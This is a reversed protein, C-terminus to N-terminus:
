DQLRQFWGVEYRRLENLFELLRDVETIGWLCVVHLSGRGLAFGSFLAFLLDFQEDLALM